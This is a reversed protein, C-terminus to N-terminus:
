FSDRIFKDFPLAKRCGDSLQNWDNEEEIADYTTYRGEKSYLFNPIATGSWNKFEHPRNHPGTKLFITEGNTKGEVHPTSSSSGPVSKSGFQSAMLEFWQMLHKTLTDFYSTIFTKLEENNEKEDM